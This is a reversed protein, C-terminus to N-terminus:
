ENGGEKMRTNWERQKIRNKKRENRRDKRGENQNGSGFRFGVLLRRVFQRQHGALGQRDVQNSLTGTTSCSEPTVRAFSKTMEVTSSWSNQENKTGQVMVTYKVHKLFSGNITGDLRDM